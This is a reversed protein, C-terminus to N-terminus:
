EKKRKHVYRGVLMITAILGIVLALPWVMGALMPIFMLLFICDDHTEVYEIAKSKSITQETIFLHMWRLLEYIGWTFFPIISIGMTIFCIRFYLDCDM